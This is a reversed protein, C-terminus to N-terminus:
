HIIEISLDSTAYDSAELFVRILDKHVARNEVRICVLEIAASTDGCSPWDM